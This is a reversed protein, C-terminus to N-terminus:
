TIMKTGTLRATRYYQPIVDFKEQAIIDMEASRLNKKVFTSPLMFMTLKKNPNRMETRTIPNIMVPL